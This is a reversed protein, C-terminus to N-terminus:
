PAEKNVRRIEIRGGGEGFTAVVQSHTLLDAITQLGNARLKNPDQIIPSAVIYDISRWGIPLTQQVAPDAHLKYFWIAGLGPAFGSRVADLWLVDDVVIRVHEPERVNTQLWTRVAAYSRNEDATLARWDGVVWRPTVM